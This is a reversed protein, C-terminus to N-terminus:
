DEFVGSRRAELDFKNEPSRMAKGGVDFIVLRM